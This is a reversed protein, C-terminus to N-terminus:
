MAVDRCGEPFRLPRSATTYVNQEAGCFDHPRVKLPVYYDLGGGGGGLQGEAFNFIRSPRTGFKQPPSCTYNDTHYQMGVCELSCFTYTHISSCGSWESKGFPTAM